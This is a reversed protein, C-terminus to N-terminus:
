LSVKGKQDALHQSQGLLDVSDFLPAAVGRLAQNRSQKWRTVGDHASWFVLSLSLLAIALGIKGSTSLAHRRNDLFGLASTVFFPLTM